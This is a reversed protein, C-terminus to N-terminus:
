GGIWGGGVVEDGQYLVAAQGPTAARVPADLHLRLTAAGLVEVRAPVAAGRYRVQVEVREPPAERFRPLLTVRTVLVSRAELDAPDATVVVEGSAARIASVWARRGAAVGTGRRQGLTFRHIGAHTGLSRGQPDVVAGPRASAGFRRRLTEAFGEGAALLCADQSEPAEAVPLGRARALDRVQPKTLAGLPFRAVALAEDSLSFLFYSQDKGRDVGRLLAPRGYPDPALRTYHGTAVGGAGLSRAFAVLSGLKVHENCGVCPNPTRGAAYDDWAPRLVRHEFVQRQDLVYHPIGLADAVARARAVAEFGCCARVGQTADEECGYLQLTVGVVLAGTEQVLAAAVASDVGGSLAAVVLDPM